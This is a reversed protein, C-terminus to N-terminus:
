SQKRAKIARLRDMLRIALGPKNVQDGRGIALAGDPVNQTIVSGSGVLAQKGITVPAVLSSNSGVFAREGIETRHKMVGDYNCTIAGAGINAAEGVTADGVYSLHNVKAGAQIDASKIEVFNGVKADPGIEAGPRLRAYPGVIAGASVHCGELHSFARIRADSEVTVGPGFVVNAEIVADRGIVTDQALFVTDPAHLSVGNALLESRARSQFLAEAKALDTRSNVGLTEAEECTVVATKLGQANGIEPLSTLYYEGSANTNDIRDILDFMQPVAVCMVGSNCLTVADEAANADKQEVIRDLFGDAGLVLRGYGKPNAAEFGLVTIDADSALMRSLTEPKVFPTDGFLVLAKGAFGELAPRAQAVAHGTGLREEQRAFSAEPLFNSVEAEVADAGHGTVVVFRSPTLEATSAIAHAVLPAHAVQHLVKPLDSQMRTGAGAALIIVAVSMHTVGGSPWM